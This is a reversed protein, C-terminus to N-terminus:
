CSSAEGTRRPASVRQKGTEAETKRRTTSHQAKTPQKAGQRPGIHLAEELISVISTLSPFQMMQPM